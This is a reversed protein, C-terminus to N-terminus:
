RSGSRAAGYVLVTLVLLGLSITPCDTIRRLGFYDRLATGIYLKVIGCSCDWDIGRERVDVDVCVCVCAGLFFRGLYADYGVDLCV